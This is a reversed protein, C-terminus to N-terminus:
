PFGAGTRRVTGGGTHRCGQPGEGQPQLGAGALVPPGRSPARRGPDRYGPVKGSLCPVESGGTRDPNAPADGRVGPHRVPGNHGAVPVMEGGIRVMFTHHVPVPVGCGPYPRLWRPHRPVRGGCGWGGGLFIGNPHRDNGTGRLGGIYGKRRLSIHPDPSTPRPFPLPPFPLPRFPLPPPVPCHPGGHACGEPIGDPCIGPFGARSQHMMMGPFREEPRRDTRDADM